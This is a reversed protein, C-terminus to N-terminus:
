LLRDPHADPHVGALRDALAVVEEAAVHDEGRPDRRLRAAALHEDRLQELLECLAGAVDREALRALHGDLAQRAAVPQVGHLPLSDPRPGPLPRIASGAAAHAHPRALGLLELVCPSARPPVLPSGSSASIRLYERTMRTRPTTPDTM